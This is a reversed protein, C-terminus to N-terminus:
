WFSPPSDFELGCGAQPSEQRKNMGDAVGQQGFVGVVEIVVTRVAAQPLSSGQPWEGARAWGVGCVDSSDVSEAAEDVFILLDRPTLRIEPM